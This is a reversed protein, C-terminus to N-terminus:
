PLRCPGHRRVGSPCGPGAHRHTSTRSRRRARRSRGPAMTPVTPVNLGAAAAPEGQQGEDDGDETTQAVHVARQEATKDDAEDLRPTTLVQRSRTLASAKATRTRTRIKRGEPGQHTPGVIGARNSTQHVDSVSSGDRRPPHGTPRRSPPGTSAPHEEHESQLALEVGSLLAGNPVIKMNTASALSHFRMPPKM